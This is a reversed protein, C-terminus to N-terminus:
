STDGEILRVNGPAESATTGNEEETFEDYLKEAVRFLQQHPSEKPSARPKGEPLPRERTAKADAIAQTFYRMSKISGNGASLRQVTPYIDIEPDAGGALWSMAESSDGWKWDKQASVGLIECCREQVVMAERARAPLDVPSGPVLRTLEPSDERARADVVVDKPESVTIHGSINEPLDSMKKRYTDPCGSVTEPLTQLTYGDSSRSGDERMRRGRIIYGGKELAALHTRVSRDTQGTDAALKKQGPFCYGDGDAYNALAVLVFKCGTPTLDQAFAWAIAQVSM